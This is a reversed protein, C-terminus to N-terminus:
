PSIHAGPYPLPGRQHQAICVLKSIGQKLWLANSLRLKKLCVEISESSPFGSMDVQLLLSHAQHGQIELSRAQRADNVRPIKKETERFGM